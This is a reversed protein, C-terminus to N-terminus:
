QRTLVLVDPVSLNPTPHSYLLQTLAEPFIIFGNQSKGTSCLCCSLYKCQAEELQLTHTPKSYGKGLLTIASQPVKMNQQLKEGVANAREMLFFFFAASIKFHFHM